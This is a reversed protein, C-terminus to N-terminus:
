KGDNVGRTERRLLSIVAAPLGLKLLDHDLKGQASRRETACGGSHLSGNSQRQM